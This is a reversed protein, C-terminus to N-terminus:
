AGAAAREAQEKQLAAAKICPPPVFDVPLLYHTDEFVVGHGVFFICVLFGATARQEFQAQM